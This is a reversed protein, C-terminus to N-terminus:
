QGTGGEGEEGIQQCKGSMCILGSPCICNIQSGGICGDSFFGCKNLPCTIPGCYIEGGCNDPFTGCNYPRKGCRRPECYPGIVVQKATNNRVTYNGIGLALFRQNSAGNVDANFYCYYDNKDPSFNITKSAIWVPKTIQVRLNVQGEASNATEIAQALYRCLTAKEESNNIATAQENQQVGILMVVVLLGLLIIVAMLTEAAVQGQLWEKKM